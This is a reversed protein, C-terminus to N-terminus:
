ESPLLTRAPPQPAARAQFFPNWDIYPLVESIPFDAYVKTGIVKPKVPANAPSKWDIAPGRKRAEGLPVYKRDELGAYFEDRLESYQERVEEMFETRQANNKDM